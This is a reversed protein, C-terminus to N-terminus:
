SDRETAALDAGQRAERDLLDDEVLRQLIAPCASIVDKTAKLASEILEEPNDNLTGVASWYLREIIPKLESAPMTLEFREADSESEWGLDDLLRLEIEYRRRLRQADFHLANRDRRHVTLSM